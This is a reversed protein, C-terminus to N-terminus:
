LSDGKRDVITRFKQLEERSLSLHEQKPNFVLVMIRDAIERILDADIETGGLYEPYKDLALAIEEHTEFHKWRSLNFPHFTVWLYHRSKARGFDVIDKLTAAYAVCLFHQFYKYQGNDSSYRKCEVVLIDKKGMLFHGALDLKKRGTLHLVSCEPAHHYVDFPLEIFTTAELWRKVIAVGERGLEQIEEAEEGAM